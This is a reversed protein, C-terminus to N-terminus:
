GVEEGGSVFGASLLLESAAVDGPYMQARRRGGPLGAYAGRARRRLVFCCGSLPRWFLVSQAGWGAASEGDVTLAYDAHRTGSSM